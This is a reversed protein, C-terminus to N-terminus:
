WELRRQVRDHDLRRHRALRQVGPEGRNKITINATFGSPWESTTYQVDCGTAAQAMTAPLAVMGGAVLAGVSALVAGKRRGTLRNWADM